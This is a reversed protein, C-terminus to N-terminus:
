VFEESNHMAHSTTPRLHFDYWNLFEMKLIKNDTSPSVPLYKPGIELPNSSTKKRFREKSNGGPFFLVFIINLFFYLFFTVDPLTVYSAM